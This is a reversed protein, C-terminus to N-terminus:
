MMWWALATLALVVAVALAFFSGLPRRGPPTRPETKGHRGTLVRFQLDAALQRLDAAVDAAQQYRGDVSKVLMKTIVADLRPSVSPNVRSVPPATTQLIKLATGADTAGGFPVQGTVMQYFVVGLSFIDSRRDLRQGLVEEPSMYSPPRNQPGPFGDEWWEQGVSVEASLKRRAAGGSTWSSFGLDILKAQDAPTVIVSSPQIDGHVVGIREAESLADALHVGLEVALHQELPRGNLMSALSHGPVYEHALYLKGDIEGADYLTAVHPHSIKKALAARALLKERRWGPPVVDDRVFRLAVTRGTREDRARFLEGLTGHESIRDLITYDGNAITSSIPM